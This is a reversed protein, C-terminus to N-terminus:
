ISDNGILPSDAPSPWPNDGLLEKLDTVCEALPLDFKNVINVCLVLIGRGKIRLDETAGKEAFNRGANRLNIAYDLLSEKDSTSTKGDWFCSEWAEKAVLFARRQGAETSVECYRLELGYRTAMTKIERYDKVLGEQAQDYPKLASARKYLADLSRQVQFAYDIAVPTHVPVPALNPSTGGSAISGLFVMLLVGGFIGVLWYWGKTAPLTHNSLTQPQTPTLTKKLVKPM